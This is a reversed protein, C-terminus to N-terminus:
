PFIGFSHSFKVNLSKEYNEAYTEEELRIYWFLVGVNSSLM